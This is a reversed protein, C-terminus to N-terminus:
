SGNAGSMTATHQTPFRWIHKGAEQHQSLRDGTPEAEQRSSEHPYKFRMLCRFYQFLQINWPFTLNSILFFTRRLFFTLCQCLDYLWQGELHELVTSTHPVSACPKLPYPPLSYATRSSARLPKKWEIIRHQPEWFDGPMFCSSDSLVSNNEGNWHTHTCSILTQKASPILETAGETEWQKTSVM